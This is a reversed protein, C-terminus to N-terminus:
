KVNVLMDFVIGDQLDFYGAIDSISTASSITPDASKMSVSPNNLQMDINLSLSSGLQAYNDQINNYQFVNPQSFPNSSTGLNWLAARDAGLGDNYDYNSDAMSGMMIGRTHGSLNSTATKFAYMYGQTM